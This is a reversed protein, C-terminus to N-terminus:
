RRPIHNELLVYSLIGANIISTGKRGGYLEKTGSADGKVLERDEFYLRVERFVKM